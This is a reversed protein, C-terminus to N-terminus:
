ENLVSRNCIPCVNKTKLFWHYFLYGLIGVVGAFPLTIVFWFLMWGWSFKSKQPTVPRGCDICNKSKM